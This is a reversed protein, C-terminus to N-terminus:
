GKPLPPLRDVQEQLEDIQSELDAIKQELYELYRLMEGRVKPMQPCPYKKRVKPM